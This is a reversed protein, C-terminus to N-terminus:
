GQIYGTVAARTVTEASALYVKSSPHGARGKFNRTGTSVLVENEGIVGQCSGWCVSCNANMIQAGAEMLIDLIGEELAQLYVANSAPAVIFRVGEKVTHRKLIEAAVRLDDIRGNNCSGLFAQDIKVPELEDLPIVDDVFDPRAVVPKIKSLDYHYVKTYNADQDSVYMHEVQRGHAKVYDIVKEDPEVIGSKAGAEVALNCLVMRDNISLNHAGEGAFEMVKYNAGNAGIDGIITLILDRPYVGEPLTGYLNFRITEPVLVWSEGTVMAYLLDTCGVGTGFAGLAGYSCTHSDAGFILEGPCVYDELMIQHCVGQGEYLKIGQEKAFNRMKKHAQATKPNEAPVNHDMIFVIKDKDAIKPNKLQNNYMDITLHTTGDNSMLRDVTVTHIDGAKVKEVGAAKAIIKEAITMGM